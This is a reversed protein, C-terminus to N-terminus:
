PREPSAPPIQTLKTAAWGVPLTGEAVGPLHSEDPAQPDNDRAVQWFLGLPGRGGAHDWVSAAVVGDPTACQAMRSLGQAPETMFHAVLGALVADFSADPFDLMEATCRRVDMAPYRQRVAAVFSASPDAASVHDIGLRSVLADTLAGTGCGVDLARQGEAVGIADIM